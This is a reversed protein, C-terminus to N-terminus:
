KQRRFFMDGIRFDDSQLGCRSCPGLAAARTRARVGQLPLCGKPRFMPFGQTLLNLLKPTSGQFGQSSGQILGQTLLNLPKPTKDGLGKPFGQTSTKTMM